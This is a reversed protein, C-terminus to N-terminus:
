TPTVNRFCSPSAPRLSQCAPTDSNCGGGLPQRQEVSCDVLSIGLVQCICLRQLVGTLDCRQQTCLCAQIMKTKSLAPELVGAEVNNRVKGEYLDLGYSSLKAKQEPNSQAMHHYSRLKAM